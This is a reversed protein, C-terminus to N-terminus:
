PADSTRKLGPQGEDGPRDRPGGHPQVPVKAVMVGQLHRPLAVHGQKGLPPAIRRQVAGISAGLGPPPRMALIAARQLVVVERCLAAFCGRHLSVDLGTQVLRWPEVLCECVRQIDDDDDLRVPVRV